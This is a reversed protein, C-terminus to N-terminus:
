GAHNTGTDREYGKGKLMARGAEQVVKWIQINFPMKDSPKHTLNFRAIM